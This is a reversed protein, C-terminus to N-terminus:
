LSGHKSPHPFSWSVRLWGLTPCRKKAIVTLGDGGHVEESDRGECETHQIAEEDDGVISPMNQVEICCLVRGVGPYDLQQALGKRVVGRRAIQDEILCRIEALFDDIGGLTEANFGSSGTKLTWPLVPEGLSEDAVATAIEQVMHDDEVLTMQLPEQVLVNPIVVVVPRM